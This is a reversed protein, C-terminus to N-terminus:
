AASALNREFALLERAARVADTLAAEPLDSLLPQLPGMEAIGCKGMVGHLTPIPGLRERERELPAFAAALREAERWDGARIARLLALSAAPAICGCGTTFGFLAHRRLHAMAVIEGSGSLIRGPGVADVLAALYPDGAPDDAVIGYKFFLVVGDAVLRRADAPELYGPAKVYLIVPAHLREAFLRAGRAVGSPTTPAAPLMMASPFRLDRLVPAAEMLKGFDPGASPIMWTEGGALSALLELTANYDYGALHYFNANGGYMMMTIGGAEIHRAMRGNAARDLGGDTARALPPVAFVWRDTEDFRPAATRM